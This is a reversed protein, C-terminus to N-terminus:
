TLEARSVKNLVREQNHVHWLGAVFGPMVQGELAVHGLEELLVAVQQALARLHALSTGHNNTGHM